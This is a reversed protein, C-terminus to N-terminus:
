KLQIKPATPTCLVARKPLKDKSCKPVYWSYGYYEGDMTESDWEYEYEVEIFDM